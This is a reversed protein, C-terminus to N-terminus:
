QNSGSSHTVLTDIRDVLTTIAMTLLDMHSKKNENDEKQLRISRDYSYRMASFNSETAKMRDYLGELKKDVASSIESSMNTFAMTPATIATVDDTDEVKTQETKAKNKSDTNSKGSRSERTTWFNKEKTATLTPFDDYDIRIMGQKKKNWGSDKNTTASTTGATATFSKAIQDSSSQYSGVHPSKFSEEM